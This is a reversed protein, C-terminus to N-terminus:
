DFWRGPRLGRLFEECPLCFIDNKLLRETGRYLLYSKSEPYDQQFSKLSRLDKPYIRAANKVEIAFLGDEGYIVFDVENGSRTRWFYLAHERGSYDVWARLHQAVLGELAHGEIEESRDLPGKPRLARFVGADFLYFKPHKVLVRQARRTFVPLKYGLLLDILVDVYGDVVKREVECERAVNSINLLSAHSFSIAELFRSFNGINRVLGELQVEERLYLAAYSQLVRDPEPSDWVVPLLGKLLSQELTFKSGLEAAVFPHLRCLLARGGLLDVGSRKLKRSSSGTLIFRWGRKEGILSHVLSLLQPVKQIEDIVVVAGEGAGRVRESLYEPNASYVRFVEPKLLDVYLADSFHQKAFTSKGTGRPGFLFFSGRPPTFFRDIVEM